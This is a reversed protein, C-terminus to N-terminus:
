ARKRGALGVIGFVAGIGSVVGVAFGVLFTWPRGLETLGLSPGLFFGSVGIVLLGVGLGLDRDRKKMAAEAM